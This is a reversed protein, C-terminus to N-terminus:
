QRCRMYNDVLIRETGQVSSAALEYIEIVEGTRNVCRIVENLAVVLMKMRRM